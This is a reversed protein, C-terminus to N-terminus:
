KTVMIIDGIYFILCSIINALKDNNNCEVIRIYKMNIIIKFKRFKM